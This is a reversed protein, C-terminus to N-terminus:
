SEFVASIKSAEVAKNMAKKAMAMAVKESLELMEKAEDASIKVLGNHPVFRYLQTGEKNALIYADPLYDGPTAVAAKVVLCLFGVKVMSGVAWNQKGSNVM